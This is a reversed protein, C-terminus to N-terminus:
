TFSIIIRLIDLYQTYLFLLFECNKDGPCEQVNCTEPLSSDGKCGEGGHMAPVKETRTNIRAGIGCSKTCEGTIWDSWECDVIGYHFRLNLNNDIYSYTLNTNCNQLIYIRTLYDYWSM